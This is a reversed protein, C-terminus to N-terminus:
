KILKPCTLCFIHHLFSFPTGHPHCKNNKNDIKFLICSAGIEYAGGLFSLKM